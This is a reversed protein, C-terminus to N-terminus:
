FWLLVYQNLLVFAGLAFLYISFYWLKSKKILKLMFKVAVFGSVAAAIFGLAAPLIDLSETVSAAGAIKYVASALIVPVSMLFSFRAAKERPVGCILAGSVTAGSRSIGPLMAAGQFLGIVVASKFSVGISLPDKLDKVEVQKLRGSAKAAAGQPTSDKAGRLPRATILLMLATIIFGFGLYSGSFTKEIFNHFFLAILVAPVTAIVLALTTKSLPHKVCEWLDKRFIILVALLTGLHLVIDFLLMDGSIGLIRQFLVLHGSSSVPLFETIGQLLGLFVAEIINM